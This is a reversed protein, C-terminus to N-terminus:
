SPTSTFLMVKSPSCGTLALKIISELFSFLDPPSPSAVEIEQDVRRTPCAEHRVAVEAVAAVVLDKLVNRDPTVPLVGVPHCGPPFAINGDVRDRIAPQPADRKLVVNHTHSNHHM